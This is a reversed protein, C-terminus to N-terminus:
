RSRTSFVKVLSFNSYFKLHASSNVWLIHQCYMGLPINSKLNKIIKHFIYGMEPWHEGLKYGKFVGSFWLNQPTKSSYLISITALIPNIALLACTKSTNTHFLADIYLKVSIEKNLKDNKVSKNWDGTQNIWHDVM